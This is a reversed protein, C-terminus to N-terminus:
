EKKDNNDKPEEIDKNANSSIILACYVCFMVFLVCISLLVIAVIEM